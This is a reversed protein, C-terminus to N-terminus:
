SRLGKAQQEQCILECMSKAGALSLLPVAKSLLSAALVTKGEGVLKLIQQYIEEALMITTGSISIAVKGAEPTFGATGQLKRKIEDQIVRDVQEIMLKLQQYDSSPLLLLIGSKRQDDPDHAYLRVLEREVLYDVALRGGPSTISGIEVVTSRTPENM